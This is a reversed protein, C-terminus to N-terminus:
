LHTYFKERTEDDWHNASLGEPVLELVSQSDEEGGSLM